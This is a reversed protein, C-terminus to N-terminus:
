FHCKSLNDIIFRVFASLVRLLCLSLTFSLGSSTFVFSCCRFLLLIVIRHKYFNGQYYFESM